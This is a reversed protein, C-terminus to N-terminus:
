SRSRSTTVTVPWHRTSPTTWSRTSWIICAGSAPPASICAPASACPRWDRLLQNNEETVEGTLVSANLGEEDLVYTVPIKIKENGFVYDVRIGNTVKTTNVSGGRVCGASSNIQTEKTKNKNTYTILLQSKLNTVAIGSAVPDDEVIPNSYWTMGTRKDKVGVYCDSSRFYLTFNKNSAVEQFDEAVPVSEGGTNAPSDAPDGEAAYAVSFVSLLLVVSLVLSFVRKKM